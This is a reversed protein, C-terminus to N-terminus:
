ALLFTRGAGRKARGRDRPQGQRPQGHRVSDTGHCTPWPLGQRMM